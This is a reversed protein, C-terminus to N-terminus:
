AADLRLSPCGVTRRARMRPAGVHEFYIRELGLLRAIPEGAAATSAGVLVLFALGLRKVM